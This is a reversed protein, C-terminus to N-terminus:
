REAIDRQSLNRLAMPIKGNAVAIAGLMESGARSLHGGDYYLLNKGSFANCIEGDCILDRVSFTSIKRREASKKAILLNVSMEGSDRLLTKSSCDLFPIKLAKEPCKRDMANFTPAKLAVVINKGTAELDDLLADMDTGFELKNQMQYALWSAGIIITEYAQMEERAKAYYAPCSTKYGELVYKESRKGPFPPCAHHEINRIAVGQSKAIVTLYGAFHAANSDGILLVKPAKSIEGSVCQDDSFLAPKYADQCVYTAEAAPQAGDRYASLNERYNKPSLVEIAGGHQVIVYALLITFAAVGPIAATKAIGSTSSRFPGEILRYTAMTLLFMVALCQVTGILSLESYSYRYLALVPWHWLYLSFSRLGFYKFVPNTLARALVAGQNFGSAILLAAGIAPIISRMGPFGGTESLLAFSYSVLLLGVAGAINAATTTLTRRSDQWLFLLAGVLLEGARSPLMYYAFSPDRALYYESVAFSAATVLIATAVVLRKGGIRMAVVIFAPWIVYFQEEVGLSWMHLLPVTDSSAAFYSTDLFKWFYINAVSFTTAIASTSLAKADDPLMLALGLLLTCLTVFFAAPLIRRVRRMYFEVFSFTGSTVKNVIIGTILYGSIVFFIDVGAFGGPLWQKNFHYIVVAIVAVARLGDIDPRYSFNNNHM